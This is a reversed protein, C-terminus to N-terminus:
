HLVKYVTQKDFNLCKFIVYYVFSYLETKLIKILISIFLWVSLIFTGHGMFEVNSIKFVM